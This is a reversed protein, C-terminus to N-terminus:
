GANEVAEVFTAATKTVTAEDVDAFSAATVVNNGVRATISTSNLTTQGNASISAKLGVTEDAGDVSADFSEFKMNMEMGEAKITVDNCQETVASSTQLHSAAADEDALSILGVTMKRDSTAGTVTTNDGAQSANLAAMSLDKCESPEYEAQELATVAENGSAAATDIAEFSQGDADTSELISKLQAEDLQEAQPAQETAAAEGGGTEQPQEGDQGGSCGVLTLGTILAIAPLIRKM